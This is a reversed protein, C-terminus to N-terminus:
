QYAQTTELSACYIKPIMKANNSNEALITYKQQGVQFKGQCFVLLITENEKPNNCFVIETALLIKHNKCVTNQEYFYFALTLSYIFLVM